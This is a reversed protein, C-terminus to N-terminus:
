ERSQEESTQYMGPNTATFIALLPLLGGVMLAISLSKDALMGMLPNLIILPVKHAMAVFSLMTARENEPIHVNVHTAILERRTLGVGGALVLFCAITLLSPYLATIGFGVATVIASVRLYRHTSRFLKESFPFLLAVLVEIVVLGGHIWGYYEIGVGQSKLLPQYLWIVYYAGTAVLISDIAMWKIARNKWVYRGGKKAITLWRKSESIQNRRPPEKISWCTVAALFFPISSLYMPANISIHSAIIGGIPASIAMAAFKVAYARGFIKTRKAELNASRLTDYLLANDAGSTLALGMAFLFEGLLFVEFKPFSGYVVTAMSVVLAGLAVSHKRGFYDAVVGTPVELVFAWFMFWSQLFYAHFLGLGAWDTFLPTLVAAFLSANKFFVYLYYKILTNRFTTNM